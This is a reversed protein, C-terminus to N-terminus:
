SERGSLKHRTQSQWNKFARHDSASLSAFLKVHRTGQTVDFQYHNGGSLRVTNITAGLDKLFAIYPRLRKTMATKMRM